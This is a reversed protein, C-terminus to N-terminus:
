VAANEKNKKINGIGIGFLMWFTFNPALWYFLDAAMQNIMFAILGIFVAFIFPDSRNQWLRRFWYFIFILFVTIGIVGTECMFRLYINDPTKIFAVAGEVCYNEHVSPYNGFGVGFFPYDSLINWTTKYSAARHSAFIEESLEKINARMFFTNRLKSFIFLPSIMVICIAVCIKWNKLLKNFNKKLSCYIVFAVIASIWSSRSFTFMISTSILLLPIINFNLKKKDQIYVSISLPLFLVLYAGLVLPHGITSAMGSRPTLSYNLLAIVWKDYPNWHFFFDILGVFSVLSACILLLIKTKWYNDRNFIRASIYAISIGRLFFSGLTRITYIRDISSVLSLSFGVMIILLGKDFLTLKKDILWSVVVLFLVVGGVLIYHFPMGLCKISLFSLPVLSIVFFITILLLFKLEDIEKKKNLLYM